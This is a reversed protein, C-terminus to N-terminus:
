SKRFFIETIEHLGTQGKEYKGKGLVQNYTLKLQSSGGFFKQKSNM